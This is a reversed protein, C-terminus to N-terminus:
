TKIMYKAARLGVHFHMLLLVIHLVVPVNEDSSSLLHLMGRVSHSNVTGLDNEMTVWNSNCQSLSHIACIDIDNKNTPHPIPAITRPQTASLKPRLDTNNGDSAVSMNIPNTLLKTSLMIM